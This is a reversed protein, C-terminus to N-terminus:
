YKQQGRRLWGNYMKIYKKAVIKDKDYSQHTTIWRNCETFFTIGHTHYMTQYKNLRFTTVFTVCEVENERFCQMLKKIDTVFCYLEKNSFITGQINITKFFVSVFFCDLAPNVHELFETVQACQPKEQLIIKLAHFLMLGKLTKRYNLKNEVYYNPFRKDTGKLM